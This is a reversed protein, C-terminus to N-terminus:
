LAAIRVDSSRELSRAPTLLLAPTSVLHDTCVPRPQGTVGTVARLVSLPRGTLRVLFPQKGQGPEPGHLRALCLLRLRGDPHYRRIGEICTLLEVADAMAPPGPAPSLSPAAALEPVASLSLVFSGATGLRSTDHSWVARGAPLGTSPDPPMTAVRGARVVDWAEATLGADDPTGRAHEVPLDTLTLAPLVRRGDLRAAAPTALVLRVGALVAAAVPSALLLPRDTWDLPRGAPDAAGASTGTVAPGLWAAALDLAASLQGVADPGAGGLLLPGFGSEVRALVRVQAGLTVLVSQLRYGSCRPGRDAVARAVAEARDIRDTLAPDGSSPLVRVSGSVRAGTRTLRVVEHSTRLQVRALDRSPRRGPSPTAVVRVAVRDRGPEVRRGDGPVATAARSVPVVAGSFAGTTAPPLAVPEASSKAVSM